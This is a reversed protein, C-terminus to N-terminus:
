VHSSITACEPYFHRFHPMQLPMRIHASPATEISFDGYIQYSQFVTLNTGKFVETKM